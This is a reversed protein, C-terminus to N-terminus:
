REPDNASNEAASPGAHRGNAESLGEQYLYAVAELRSHVNLKGLISQVHNRTTSPSISLTDAMEDTSLGQALLSLVQRERPTLADLARDSPTDPAPPASGLMERDHRLERSAERVQEVFRQNSREETADRFLHVIVNGLSRDATPFAFTTVNIWRGEGDGTQAYVDPNPLPTGHHASIAPRCYRQCLTRGQEDRGGLIEYCLQGKVEEATYGLITEAAQNWFIIQHQENIIFAGDSTSALAQFLRRM